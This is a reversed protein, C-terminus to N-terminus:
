SKETVITSAKEQGEEVKVEPKIEPKAESAKEGTSGESASAIANLSQKSAGLEGTKPPPSKAREKEKREEKSQHVKAKIRGFLGKREKDESEHEKSPTSGSTSVPAASPTSGETGTTTQQSGETASKRPKREPSDLASPSEEPVAVASLSTAPHGEKSPEHDKKLASSLRWRSRRKQGKESLESENHEVESEETVMGSHLSPAPSKASKVAPSPERSGKNSVHFSSMKDLEGLRPPAEGTPSAETSLLTPIAPKTQDKPPTSPPKVHKEVARASDTLSQSSSRASANQASEGARSKKKLKNPQRLDKRESDGNPSKAFLSRRDKTPTGSTITTTVGQEPKQLRLKENSAIAPIERSVKRSPTPDGAANTVEEPTSALAASPPNPTPELAAVDPEAKPPTAQPTSAPKSAPSHSASRPGPEAGAHRSFAPSDIASSRKSPLTSSRHVGGGSTSNALPSSPAPSGTSPKGSRNSQKSSASANRRLAGLKRLSDAGASANSASRGLGAHPTKTPTQPQRQAATQVEKVTKEDAETGSMGVLFHDQNLILYVLVNQSLKYEKPELDHRPHSLIGPQFIASLNFSDMGNAESKSAFVALLDLLYLLLQRNLAPIETILKQYAIIVNAHDFKEAPLPDPPAEPDGTAAKVHNRIADRFKDYFELPIVPEPLTNIYRRFISAADHVTFGTWDLGKGYRDPSDFAAQLDKIRKASGPLRFIGHVDTGKEKLFVGCKAIVIPVYGYTYSEGKDNTLSIAVNAYKISTALPVGFIGSPPEAKEEDKKARRKFGSWWSTLDRRSPPSSGSM